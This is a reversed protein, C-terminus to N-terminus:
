SKVERKPEAPLALLYAKMQDLLGAAMRLRATAAQQGESLALGRAVVVGEKAVEASRLVSEADNSGIKKAALLTRTLTVVENATTLVDGAYDNFSRAKREGGGPTVCATLLACILVLLLAAPSHLTKM